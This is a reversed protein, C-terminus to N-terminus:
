TCYIAVFFFVGKLMSHAAEIVPPTMLKFIYEPLLFCKSINCVYFFVQYRVLVNHVWTCQFASSVYM